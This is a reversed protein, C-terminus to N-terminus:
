QRNVHREEQRSELEKLEPVVKSGGGDGHEAGHESFLCPELMHLLSRGVM